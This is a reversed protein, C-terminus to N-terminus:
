RLGTFCGRVPRRAENTEEAPGAWEGSKRQLVWARFQLTLPVQGEGTLSLVTGVLLGTLM